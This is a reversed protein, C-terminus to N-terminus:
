INFKLQKSQSRLLWSEMLKSRNLLKTVYSNKQLPVLFNM